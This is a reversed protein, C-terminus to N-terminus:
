KMKAVELETATPLRLQFEGVELRTGDTAFTLDCLDCYRVVAGRNLDYMLVLESGQCQNCDGASVTVCDLVLERVSAIASKSNSWSICELRRQLDCPDLRSACIPYSSRSRLVEDILDTRIRLQTQELRGIDDVCIALADLFRQKADCGNATGVSEVAHSVVTKLSKTNM